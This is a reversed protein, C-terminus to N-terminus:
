IKNDFVVSTFGGRKSWEASSTACHWIKLILFLLRKGKSWDSIAGKNDKAIAKVSYTGEIKWSKSMTVPSDSFCILEM